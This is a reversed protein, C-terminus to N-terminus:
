LPFHNNAPFSKRYCGQLSVNDISVAVNQPFLNAISYFWLFRSIERLYKAMYPIGHTAKYGKNCYIAFM